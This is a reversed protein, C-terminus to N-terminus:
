KKVEPVFRIPAIDDTTKPGARDQNVRTVLESPADAYIADEFGCAVCERLQTGADNSWARIKDRGSCKPCVAGAIFRKIM